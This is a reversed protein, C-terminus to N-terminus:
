GPGNGPSSWLHARARDADERGKNMPSGAGPLYETPLSFQRLGQGKEVSRILELAAESCPVRKAFAFALRLNTGWV